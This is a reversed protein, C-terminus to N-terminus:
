LVVAALGVFRESVVAAKVTRCVSLITRALHISAPGTGAAARVAAERAQRYANVASWRSSKRGPEAVDRGRSADRDEGQEQMRAATGSGLQHSWTADTDLSAKPRTHAHPNSDADAQHQSGEDTSLAHKAGSDVATTGANVLHGSSITDGQATTPCGHDSPGSSTGGWRAQSVDPTHSSPALDTGANSATAQLWPQQYLSPNAFADAFRPRTLYVHGTRKGPLPPRQASGESPASLNAVSSSTAAAQRGIQSPASIALPASLATSNPALTTPRSTYSSPGEPLAAAVSRDANISALTAEIFTSASSQPQHLSPVHQLRSPPVSTSASGTSVSSVQQNSLTPVPQLVARQPHHSADDRLCPRATVDTSQSLPPAPALQISQLAASGHWPTRAQEQQVLMVGAVHQQQQQQLYVAQQQQQQLYAAQQQQTQAQYMQMHEQQAQQMPHPTHTLAPEQPVPAIAMCPPTVAASQVLTWSEFRDVAEKVSAPLADAPQASSSMLVSSAPLAGQQARAPQADGAEGSGSTVISSAALSAEQASATDGAEADNASKAATLHFQSHAPAEIQGCDAGPESDHPIHQTSHETKCSHAPAPLQPVCGRDPTIGFMWDDSISPM